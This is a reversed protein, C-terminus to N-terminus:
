RASTGSIKIGKREYLNLNPRLTNKVIEFM